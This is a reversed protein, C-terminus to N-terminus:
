CCSIRFCCLVDVRVISGRVAVVSFFFSNRYQKPAHSGSARSPRPFGQSAYLLSSLWLVLLLSLLLLVVFPFVQSADTCNQRVAPRRSPRWHASREPLRFLLLLLLLLLFLLLSLGM